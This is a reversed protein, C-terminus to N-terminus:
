GGILCHAPLPAMSKGLDCVNKLKVQRGGAEVLRGLIGLCLEDSCAPEHEVHQGTFPLFAAVRLIPLICCEAEKWYHIVVDCAACYVVAAIACKGAQRYQM